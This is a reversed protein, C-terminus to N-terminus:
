GLIEDTKMGGYMEKGSNLRRWFVFYAGFSTCANIFTAASLIGFYFIRFFSEASLCTPFLKYYLSYVRAFTKINQKGLTMTIIFYVLTERAECFAFDTLYSEM